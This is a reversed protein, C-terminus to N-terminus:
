RELLMSRSALAILQYNPGSVLTARKLVPQGFRCLAEDDSLTPKCKKDLKDNCPISGPEKRMFAEMDLSCEFSGSCPFGVSRSIWKQKKARNVAYCKVVNGYCVTTLAICWSHKWMKIEVYIWPKTVAYRISQM